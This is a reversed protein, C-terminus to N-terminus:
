KSKNELEAFVRKVIENAAPCITTNKETLELMSNIKRRNTHPYGACAAPRIDYISCTNDKNLFSCPTKKLVFDNEHDLYVYKEIFDKPKIRLRKSITEIDKNKFVPTATKCCNACELCDIIEFVEEHKNEFIRDLTGSKVKQFSKFIKKREKKTDDIDKRYKKLNIEM